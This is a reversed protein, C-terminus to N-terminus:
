LNRVVDRWIRELSWQRSWSAPAMRCDRTRGRAAGVIQFERGASRVSLKLLMSKDITKFAAEFRVEM